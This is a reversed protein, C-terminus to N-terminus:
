CLKIFMQLRGVVRQNHVVVIMSDVVMIIDVFSTLQTNVHQSLFILRILELVTNNHYNLVLM